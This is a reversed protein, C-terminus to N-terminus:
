KCVCCKIRVAIQSTKESLKGKKHASGIRVTIVYKKQKSVGDGFM